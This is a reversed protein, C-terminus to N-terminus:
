AARAGSGVTRETRQWTARQTGRVFRWLGVALAANMACFYHALSAVRRVPRGLGAYGRWGAIALAYFGAQAVLLARYGWAGPASALAGNALIAAALLFPSAWRLLKHSVFAFFLFGTRPDLLEPVRVLAQWNGAGIRARRVFERAANETTEEHAIADPEFPVAWGRAAIRAPIVFDDTITDPAIPTFLLRRIAYIGGNAGVVCGHKGEWYKLATEYKWYLSEEYERRTPNYLRLRGVVAGVAPDRFRRALSRIAGPEMMVNADTLVVVDGTAAPVLRSLVSAKGARPTLEHVTVRAGGAARAVEATRDSCGDCGVVLELRDAPYDLALLNEIKARICSEEDFASFVVSVRPWGEAGRRVRRDLGGSIFRLGSLVERVGDWAALVIPYGVYSFVVLGLALWFVLEMAGAFLLRRAV